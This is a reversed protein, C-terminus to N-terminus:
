LLQNHHVKMGLDFNSNWAENEAPDVSTPLKFKWLHSCSKKVTCSLRTIMSAFGQPLRQHPTLSCSATSVFPCYLTSWVGWDGGNPGEGGRARGAHSMLIDQVGSRAVRGDFLCRVWKIAWWQEILTWCWQTLHVGAVSQEQGIDIKSLFCFFHGNKSNLTTIQLQFVLSFSHLPM